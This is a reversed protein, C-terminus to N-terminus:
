LLLYGYSSLDDIIGSVIERYKNEAQQKEEETTLIIKSRVHGEQQLGSSLWIATNAVILCAPGVIKLDYLLMDKSYVKKPEVDCLLLTEELTQYYTDM